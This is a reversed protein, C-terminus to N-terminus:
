FCISTLADDISSPSSISARSGEFALPKGKIKQGEAVKEVVLDVALEVM